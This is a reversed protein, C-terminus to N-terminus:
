TAEAFNGARRSARAHILHLSTDNPVSKLLQRAKGAADGNRGLELLKNLEAIAGTGCGLRLQAGGISPVTGAKDAPWTKPTEDLIRDSATQDLNGCGDACRQQMCM